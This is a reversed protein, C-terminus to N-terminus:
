PSMLTVLTGGMKDHQKQYKANANASKVYYFKFNYNM